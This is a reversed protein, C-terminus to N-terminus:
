RNERIVMHRIEASREAGRDEAEACRPCLHRHDRWEGDTFMGVLAHCDLCFRPIAYM